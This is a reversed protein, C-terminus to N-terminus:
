CKTRALQKALHHLVQGIDFWVFTALHHSCWARCHSLSAGISKKPTEQLCCLFYRCQMDTSLVDRLSVIRVLSHHLSYSAGYLNITTTPLKLQSPPFRLQTTNPPRRTTAYLKKRHVPKQGQQHCSSRLFRRCRCGMASHTRTFSATSM